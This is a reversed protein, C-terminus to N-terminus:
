QKLGQRLSLGQPTEETILGTQELNERLTTIPLTTRLLILAKDQSLSQPEIELVGATLAIRQRLNVWNSLDSFQVTILISHPLSAASQGRGSVGIEILNQVAEPSFEVSFRGLYRTGLFKESEIRVSTVYDGVRSDSIVALTPSPDAGTLRELLQRLAKKQAQVIATARSDGTNELNIEVGEVSYSGAFALPTSLAIAIFIFIKLITSCIVLNCYHRMM